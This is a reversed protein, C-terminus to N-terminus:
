NRFLVILGIRIFRTLIGGKQCAKELGYIFILVWYFVPTQLILTDYTM